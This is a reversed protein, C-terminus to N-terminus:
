LIKKVIRTLMQASTYFLAIVSRVIHHCLKSWHWYVLPKNCVVVAYGKFLCGFNLQILVCASHMYLYIESIRIITVSSHLTQYKRGHVTYLALWWRSHQLSSHSSCSSKCFWVSWGLLQLMKETEVLGAWGGTVMKHNLAVVTHVLCTIPMISFWKYLSYSYCFITHVSSCM